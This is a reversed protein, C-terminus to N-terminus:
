LAPSSVSAFSIEPSQSAYISCRSVAKSPSLVSFFKLAAILPTPVSMDKRSKSSNLSASINKDLSSLCGPPFRITYTTVGSPSNPEFPNTSLSIQRLRM